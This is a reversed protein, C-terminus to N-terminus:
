HLSYSATLDSLFHLQHDPATSPDVNVNLDGCLIVNRRPIIASHLLGDLRDWYGIPESPPRHITGILCSGGTCPIEGWCSEVRAAAINCRPKLPLSTRSYLCVGGGLQDERDARLVNYGALTIEGDTIMSDLWTENVCVVDPCHQTM